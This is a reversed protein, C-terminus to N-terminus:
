GHAQAAYRFCLLLVCPYFTSQSAARLAPLQLPMLQALMEPPQAVFHLAAMQAADEFALLLVRCCKLGDESDRRTAYLNGGILLMAVQAAVLEAPSLEVIHMAAAPLAALSSCLTDAASATSAGQCGCLLSELAGYPCCLAYRRTRRRARRSDASWCASVLQAPRPWAWAAHRWRQTEWVRLTAGGGTVLYCGDPSWGLLTM